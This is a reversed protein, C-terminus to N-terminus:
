RSVGPVQKIAFPSRSPALGPIQSRAGMVPNCQKLTILTVGAGMVVM